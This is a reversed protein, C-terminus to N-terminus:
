NCQVIKLLSTELEGTEVLNSYRVSHFDPTVRRTHLFGFIVATELEL